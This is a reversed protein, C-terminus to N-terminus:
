SQTATYQSLSSVALVQLADTLANVGAPISHHIFPLVILRLIGRYKSPDGQTNQIVVPVLVNAPLIIGLIWVSVKYM